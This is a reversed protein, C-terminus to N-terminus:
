AIEGLNNTFTVPSKSLTPSTEGEERQTGLEWGPTQCLLLYRTSAKAPGVVSM